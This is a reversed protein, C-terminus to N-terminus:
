MSSVSIRGNIPHWYNNSSEHLGPRPIKLEKDVPINQLSPKWGTRYNTVAHQGSLAYTGLMQEEGYIISAEDPNARGSKSTRKRNAITYLLLEEEYSDDSKDVPSLWTAEEDKRANDIPADKKGSRRCRCVSVVIIIIILAGGVGASVGIVWAQSAYFECRRGMYFGTPDNNCSCSVNQNEVHICAGDNYCYGLNCKTICSTENTTKDKRCEYGDTCNTVACLGGVIEDQQQILADIAASRIETLAVFIEILKFLM